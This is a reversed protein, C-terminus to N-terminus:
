LDLVLKLGGDVAAMVRSPLSAVRETLVRKDITVIQSVNVVSSKKLHSHKRELLVNGPAAASAATPGSPLSQLAKSRFLCRGHGSCRATRRWAIWVV